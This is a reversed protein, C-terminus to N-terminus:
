AEQALGEDGSLSVANSNTSGTQSTINSAARSRGRLVHGEEPHFHHFNKWGRDFNQTLLRCGNKAPFGSGLAQPDRAAHEDTGAFHEHVLKAGFVRIPLFTLDM